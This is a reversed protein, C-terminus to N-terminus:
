RVILSVSARGSTTGTPPNRYSRSGASASLACWVRLARCRNIADLDYSNMRNNKDKIPTDDEWRLGLNLTLKPSM